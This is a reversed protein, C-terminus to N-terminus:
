QHWETTFPEYFRKWERDFWVPSSPFGEQGLADVAVVYYRRSAKGADPDSFKFASLPQLTMRQIKDKDYRGDMRYVRYGQLAREPNASWRLQATTGEEKSFLSQPASPLTYAVSSPGSEVGLANVARVRYAFVAFRYAKGETDFQESNFRREYSPEGTIRAPEHLNVNADTFRTEKILTTTIRMFPGIRQIGGASPEALPQTQNKLRKLQDESLVEAPAREIHYGVADEVSNWRLEVKDSALVSVVVDEVVRPQARVAATAASSRKDSAVTRVSYFYITGPKVKSDKWRTERADVSAMKEYDVKWSKVGEGRYIEYQGVNRSPSPKWSLTVGDPATACRLDTLPHPSEDAAREALRYALIQQENFDKGHTRNELLAANLEPAFVVVRARNGSPDPERAPNMKSWRNAGADYTWTEIRHKANDENGESIKVLAVVVKAVPDFTMVADNKDTPPMLPPRLDRWENRRLSYAWTHPDDSFQSGFLIHLQHASDYAMNGGSRFAPQTSPEMRTWTNIYPDYVLTGENSGEGGFLVVVQNDSDWTACRLPRPSPTPLPRVNRWLNSTLDYSWVSSDNLYIERWWQWGHSGSFAPFRLYRNQVPDFVNQQGCCIGPPSTNPEKLTWRASFPDFTWVEAHQEGGGGQNHGGYRILVRHQNDWACAGEYGLRPSPPTNALPSLKVWTNTAASFEAAPSHTAALLLFWIALNLLHSHM